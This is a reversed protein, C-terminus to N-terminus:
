TMQSSRHTSPMKAVTIMCARHAVTIIGLRRLATLTAEARVRWCLSAVGCAVPLSEAFCRGETHTPHPCVKLRTVVM